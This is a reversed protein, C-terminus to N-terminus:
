PAKRCRAITNLGGKHRRAKIDSPLFGASWNGAHGKPVGRGQPDTMVVFAPLDRSESGLGYTLWSGLSPFGMRAMGSNIRLLAPAHNNSDSGAAM